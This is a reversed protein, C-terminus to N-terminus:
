NKKFKAIGKEYVGSPIWSNIFALVVLIFIAYFLLWPPKSSCVTSDIGNAVFTTVYMIPLLTISIVLLLCWWAWKDGKSFSFRTIYFIAVAFAIMSGGIIKMLGLMLPIVRANFSNLADYDLQSYLKLYCKHYSMIDCHLLYMLGYVLSFASVLYLLVTTVKRKLENKHM